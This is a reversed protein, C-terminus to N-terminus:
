PSFVCKEDMGDPFFYSGSRCLFEQVIDRRDTEARLIFKWVYTVVM